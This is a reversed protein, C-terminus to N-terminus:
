VLGAMKRASLVPTSGACRIAGTFVTQISKRDPATGTADYALYSRAPPASTRPFIPFNHAFRRRKQKSEPAAARM